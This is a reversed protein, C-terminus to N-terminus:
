KCGCKQGCFDCRHSLDGDTYSILNKIHSTSTGFEKALQKFSKGHLYADRVKEISIGFKKEEM